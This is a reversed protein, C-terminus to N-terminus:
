RGKIELEIDGLKKEEQGKEQEEKKRSKGIKSNMTHLRYNKYMTFLIKRQAYTIDCLLIPFFSSSISRNQMYLITRDVIKM